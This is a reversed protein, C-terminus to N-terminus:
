NGRRISNRWLLPLKSRERELAPGMYPRAAIKVTRSERQGRRRRMVTAPGGYELVNPAISNKFGM